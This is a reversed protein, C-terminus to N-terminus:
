FSNDSTKYVVATVVQIVSALNQKDITKINDNNTDHYVGFFGSPKTSIIDITPINAITNVYFHDDTIQGIPSNIFLSGKGMAAALDWVKNQISGAMKSSIEEKSYTAGQSGILDLLIGMEPKSSDNQVSKSWFQSGLCWTETASDDGQDEADFFVFDVGLNVPNAKMLRAIELLAAVGSAGDVAGQIPKNRLAENKDKEAILRTDWHAFLAIRKKEGPNMRAIINYSPVDKKNLFSAKFEQITVEAGYSKLTNVIWDRTKLHGDSGPVRVGFSLQKEIFFYASDEEVKPVIAKPLKIASPETVTEKKPDTKCAVVITFSILILLHHIKM